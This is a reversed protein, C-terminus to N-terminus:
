NIEENNSFWIRLLPQLFILYITNIM